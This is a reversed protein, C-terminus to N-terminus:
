EIATALRSLDVDVPTSVPTPLTVTVRCGGDTNEIEFRGDSQLVIWKAIWLGVGSGHLLPSEEQRQLAELEDRPVGPGNDEVRIRMRGSGDASEEATIEVTPTEATNHVIANDVLERLAFEVQRHAIVDPSDPWDVEVTANPYEREVESRVQELPVTLDLVDPRVGNSHLDSLHKTKEVSAVFEECTTKITECYDELHAAAVDTELRDAYGVVVTLNNRLNHRLVRHLVGLERRAAELQENTRQLSTRSGRTLAFILGGTLLVEISGKVAQVQSLLPDDLLGVLLVDSVFLAAFGFFLYVLTVRLPTLDYAALVSRLRAGWRGWGPRWDDRTIVSM